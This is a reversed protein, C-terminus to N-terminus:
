PYTTNSSVHCINIGVGMEDYSTDWNVGDTSYAVELNKRSFAVYMGGGYEMLDYHMDPVQFTDFEIGQPTTEKLNLGNSDPITYYYDMGPFKIGKLSKNEM